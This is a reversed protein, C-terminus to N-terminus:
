SVLDVGSYVPRQEANSAYLPDLQSCQKFLVAEGQPIVLIM